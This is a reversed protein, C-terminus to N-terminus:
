TKSKNKLFFLFILGPLSLLGVLGWAGHYGKERSYSWCGWIFLSLGSIILIASMADDMGIPSKVFFGIIQLLLGLGIGIYTNKKKISLM